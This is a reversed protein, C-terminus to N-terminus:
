VNHPNGPKGTANCYGDNEAHNGNGTTLTGDIRLEVDTNNDQLLKGKCQRGQQNSHNPGWKGDYVVTIEAEVVGCDGEVSGGVDLVGDASDYGHAGGYWCGTFQDEIQLFLTDPGEQWYDVHYDGAVFGGNIWDNNEVNAPAASAVLGTSMLGLLTALVVFKRM